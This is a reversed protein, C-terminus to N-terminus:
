INAGHRTIIHMKKTILVEEKPVGSLLKVYKNNIIKELIIPFDELSHDGVGCKTCFKLDITEKWPCNPSMYMADIHDEEVLSDIVETIIIGEEITSDEEDFTTMTEITTTKSTKVMRNM